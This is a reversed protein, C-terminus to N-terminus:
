WLVSEDSSLVAAFPRERSLVVEGMGIERTSMVCRGKEQTEEVRVCPKELDSDTFGNRDYECRKDPDSLIRYAEKIMDFTRLDGGKDPHSVRALKRYAVIIERLTAARSVGLVRYIDPKIAEDYKRRLAEDSLTDYAAKIRAYAPSMTPLDAVERARSRYAVVIEATTSSTSVGLVDYFDLEKTPKTSPPDPADGQVDLAQPQPELVAPPNLEQEPEESPSLLARLM